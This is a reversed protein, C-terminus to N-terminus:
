EEEMVGAEEVEVIGEAVWHCIQYQALRGEQHHLMQSHYQHYIIHHLQLHHGTQKVTIQPVTLYISADRIDCRILYYILNSLRKLKM